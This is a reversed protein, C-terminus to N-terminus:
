AMRLLVRTALLFNAGVPEGVEIRLTVVEADGIILDMGEDAVVFSADSVVNLM